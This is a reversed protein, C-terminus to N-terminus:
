SRRTVLAVREWGDDRPKPPPQEDPWATEPRQHWQVRNRKRFLELRSSLSAQQWKTGRFGKDGCSIGVLREIKPKAQRGKATGAEGRCAQPALM